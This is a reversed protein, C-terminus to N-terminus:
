GACIRMYKETENILGDFIVLTRDKAVESVPAFAASRIHLTAFLGENEVQAIDMKSFINIITSNDTHFESHHSQLIGANFPVEYFSLGFLPLADKDVMFEYKGVFRIGTPSIYDNIRGMIELLYGLREKLLDIKNGSCYVYLFYPSVMVQFINQSDKQDDKWFFIFAKRESIENISNGLSASVSELDIRDAEEHSLVRESFTGIIDQVEGQFNEIFDKKSYFDLRFSVERCDRRFSYDPSFLSGVNHNQMSEM